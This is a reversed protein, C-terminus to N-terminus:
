GACIWVGGWDWQVTGLLLIEDQEMRAIADVARKDEHQRNRDYLNAYNSSLTCNINIKECQIKLPRLEPWTSKEEVKRDTKSGMPESM